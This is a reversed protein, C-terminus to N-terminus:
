FEKVQVKKLVEERTLKGTQFAALDIGRVSILIRSTDDLQGPAPPGDSDSAAVTLWETEGIKLFHSYRLMADILANKVAETYLENPDRIEPMQAQSPAPTGAAVAVSESAVAVNAAEVRDRTLQTPTTASPTPPLLVQGAQAAAMLREIQRVRAMVLPRRPDAGSMTAATQIMQDREQALSVMQASWVVSQKMGPVDVDFFVGYGDLVFGRARGTGTVFASGPESVKLLRALERAGQQLANTLATEMVRIDQRRTDPAPPPTQVAQPAAADTPQAASQSAALTGLVVLTTVNV